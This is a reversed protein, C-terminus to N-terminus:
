SELRCQQREDHWRQRWRQRWRPRNPTADASPWQEEITAVGDADLGFIIPRCKKEESLLRSNQFHTILSQKGQIRAYALACIKVSNFKPWSRGHFKNFFAPIHKYSTFNIFAYGVNCNGQITPRTAHVV